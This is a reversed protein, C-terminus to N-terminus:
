TIKNTSLKLDVFIHFLSLILLQPIPSLTAGSEGKKNRM